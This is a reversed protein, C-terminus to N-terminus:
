KDAAYGIIKKDLVKNIVFSKDGKYTSGFLRDRLSNGTKEDFMMIGAPNDYKSVAWEKRSYLARAKKFSVEIELFYIPHM